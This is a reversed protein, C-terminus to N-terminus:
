SHRLCVWMDQSWVRLNWLCLVTPHCWPIQLLSPSHLLLSPLPPPNGTIALSVGLVLLSWSWFHQGAPSQLPFFFHIDLFPAIFLYIFVYPLSFFLFSPLLFFSFFSFPLLSTSSSDSNFLFFLFPPPLLHPNSLYNNNCRISAWPLRRSRGESDHFLLSAVLHNWLAGGRGWHPIQLRPQNWNVQQSSLAEQACAIPCPTVKNSSLRTISIERGQMSVVRCPM